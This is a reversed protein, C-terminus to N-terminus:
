SEGDTKKNKNKKRVKERKMKVRRQLIELIKRIGATGNRFTENYNKKKPFLWARKRRGNRFKCKRRTASNKFAFSCKQYVVIIYIRTLFVHM